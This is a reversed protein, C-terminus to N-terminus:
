AQKIETIKVKTFYQRHGIHKMHHKRRKFKIISIKGARGHNVVEGSVLAKDLFPAGVSVKDGDAVLLVKDFSVKEGPDSELKEIALVENPQVRYQKGGTLIVAYM